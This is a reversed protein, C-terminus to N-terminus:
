PQAALRIISLEHYFLRASKFLGRELVSIFCPKFRSSNARTGSQSPRRPLAQFLWSGIFGKLGFGRGPRIPRTSLPFGSTPRVLTTLIHKIQPKKLFSGEPRKCFRGLTVALLSVSLIRVGLASM